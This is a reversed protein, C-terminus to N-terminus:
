STHTSLYLPCRGRYLEDSIADAVAAAPAVPRLDETLHFRSDVALVFLPSLVKLRGGGEGGRVTQLTAGSSHDRM